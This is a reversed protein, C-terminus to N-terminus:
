DYLYLETTPKHQLPRTSSLLYMTVLEHTPQYIDQQTCYWCTKHCLWSHLILQPKQYRNRFNRVCACFKGALNSNNFHYTAPCRNCPFYCAVEPRFMPLSCVTPIVIPQLIWNQANAFSVILDVSGVSFIMRLFEFEGRYVGGFHWWRRYESEAVRFSSSVTWKWGTLYCYYGAIIM